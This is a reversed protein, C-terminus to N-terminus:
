MAWMTNPQFAVIDTGAMFYYFHLIGNLEIFYPERVDRQLEIVHEKKWNFTQNADIDEGVPASMIFMKTKKSAFHYPGSRWAMFLRDKFIKIALCNNSHGLEGKIGEPLKDYVDKEHSNVIDFAESIKSIKFNKKTM